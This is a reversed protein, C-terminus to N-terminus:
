KNFLIDAGVAKEVFRKLRQTGIKSNDSASPIPIVTFLSDTRHKETDMKEFFNSTVFVVACNEDKLEGLKEQAEAANEACKVNFGLSLFGKVASEDGIVGIKYVTDM